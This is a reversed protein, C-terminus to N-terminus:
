FHVRVGAKFLRGILDYVERPSSSNSSIEAAVADPSAQKNLVNNVTLYLQWDAGHVAPGNYRAALDFYVGGPFSNRGISNAATASYGPDDPGVLTPSYKIPSFARAYLTTSVPGTAYDLSLTGKWHPQQFTGANDTVHGSPDTTKLSMVDTALARVTWQGALVHVPLRYLAEIDLGNSTLRNLNLLQQKVATVHHGSDFSLQACYAEIGKFCGNALDQPFLATLVGSIDIHYYDLSLQLGHAWEPQLVFGVTTTNAIEPVLNPNAGKQFTPTDTTGTFPNSFPFLSVAGTGYQEFLTAARIDRSRTARVLYEDTPQYTLGVKWTNVGGSDSYDTYRVAANLDLSQAAPLGSLLPLNAEAFAEKVNRGADYTAYNQLVFSGNLNTSDLAPIQNLTDRRYELGAAVSLPGAWLTLPEGRVIANVVDERLRDEFGQTYQHLYAYAASSASGSGFINFPVCGASVQARTTANLNPNTAVNGCVPTGDPGTVAYFAANIDATRLGTFRGDLNTQSHVYSAEWTWSGTISGSLAALARLYNDGQHSLYAGLDSNTRGVTIASLNDALMQARTAAPLYPNDISVITSTTLVGQRNTSATHGYNVELLLRTDDNFDYAFRALGTQRSYPPAVNYFSNPNNGYNSTTGYMNSGLVTGYQFTYPTGGPGFATGKLPGATVLGGFTGTALEVHNQFGQAPTGAARALGYSVLSPEARGFARAYWPGVGDSSSADVGLIFRARGGFLGTGYTFGGAFGKDDGYTSDTGQLNASFGEVKNKLIINAVGAVADSGYAASAGGTVLEVRDVLGIPIMNIDFPGQAGSGTTRRGDILVLTEALPLGRLQIWNQGANNGARSNGTSGSSNAVSPLERIVDSLDASARKAIEDSNVVTVPTPSKFGDVQLHTGTVVVEQLEAATGAGPGSRDAPTEQAVVPAALRLAVAVATWRGVTGRM